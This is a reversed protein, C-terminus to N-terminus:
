RQSGEKSDVEAEIAYLICRVSAGSAGSWGRVLGEFQVGSASRMISVRKRVLNPNPYAVSDTPQLAFENSGPASAQIGGTHVPDTEYFVELVPDDTPSAADEQL